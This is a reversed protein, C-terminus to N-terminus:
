KECQWRDIQAFLGAELKKIDKEEPVRVRSVFKYELAYSRGLVYRRCRYIGQDHGSGNIESCTVFLEDSDILKSADRIADREIRKWVFWENWIKKNFVILANSKSDISYTTASDSAVAAFIAADKIESWRQNEHNSLSRVSFSILDGPLVCTNRLGEPLLDCGMVSFGINKEDTNEPIFWVGQPLYGHPVCFMGPVGDVSLRSVQSCSMLTLGVLLRLCNRGFPKVLAQM